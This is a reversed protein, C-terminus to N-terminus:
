LPIEAGRVTTLAGETSPNIHGRVGAARLAAAREGDIPRAASM